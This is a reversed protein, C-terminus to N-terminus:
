YIGQGNGDTAYGARDSAPIGAGAQLYADHELRVMNLHQTFVGNKFTNKIKIIKNKVLDQM